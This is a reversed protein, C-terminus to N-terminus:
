KFKISKIIDLNFQDTDEGESVHFEFIVFCDESYDIILFAMRYEPVGFTVFKAPKGDVTIDETKEFVCDKDFDSYSKEYYESRDKLTEGSKESMEFSFLGLGEIATFIRANEPEGQVEAKEYNLSHSFSMFDNEFIIVAPAGTREEEKEGCGPFITLLTMVTLVIILKKNM